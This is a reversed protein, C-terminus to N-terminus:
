HSSTSTRQKAASHRETSSKDILSVRNSPATMQMSRSMPDAKTNEHDEQEEEKWPPREKCEKAGNILTLLKFITDVFFTYRSMQLVFEINNGQSHIHSHFKPYMLGNLKRHLKNSSRSVRISRPIIISHRDL